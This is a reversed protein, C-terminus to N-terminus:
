TEGVSATQSHPWSKTSAPAARAFSRRAGRAAAEHRGAEPLATATARGMVKVFIRHGISKEGPDCCAIRTELLSAFSVFAGRGIAFVETATSNV